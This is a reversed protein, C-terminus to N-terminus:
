FNRKEKEFIEAAYGSEKRTVTCLCEMGACQLLIKGNSRKGNRSPLMRPWLTIMSLGMNIKGSIRTNEIFKKTKLYICRWIRDLFFLCFLM